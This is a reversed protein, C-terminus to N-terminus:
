LPYELKFNISILINTNERGLECLGLTLLWHGQSGEWGERIGSQAENVTNTVRGKKSSKVIHLENRGCPRQM